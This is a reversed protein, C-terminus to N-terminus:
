PFNIYPLSFTGLLGFATPFKARFYQNKKEATKDTDEKHFKPNTTKSTVKVYTAHVKPDREKPKAM